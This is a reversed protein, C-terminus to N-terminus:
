RIAKSKLYLTGSNFDFVASNKGLYDVGLLGADELSTGRGLVEHDLRIVTASARKIEYEGIRLSPFKALRVEGGSSGLGQAVAETRDGGIRAKAAAERDIATFFAGTDVLFHCPMGNIAGAVHVHSRLPILKVPTYGQSTLISNVAAGFEKSPGNPRVFLLRNGLDLVAGYHLMERLGFLGDSSGYRRFIGRGENDSAVAVRMNLLTCNGMTLSPITALGLRKRAKGFAGHVAHETETATVSLKSLSARYILSTSAGTDVLLDGAKGNSTIPLRYFNGPHVLQAGGYGHGALFQGLAGLAVAGDCPAVALIAFLITGVAWCLPRGLPFKKVRARKVPNFAITLARVQSM